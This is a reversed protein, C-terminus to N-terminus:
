QGDGLSCGFFGSLREIFIDASGVGALQRQRHHVDDVAAGVGVVVNINLFEHDHRCACGAELFRETHTCLNEVGKFAHQLALSVVGVNAVFATECGVQLGVLFRQFDNHLRDDLGTVLRAFVHKECKVNGRGLQEFVAVVRQLVLSM